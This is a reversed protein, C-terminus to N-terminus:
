PIHFTLDQPKEWSLGHEPGIYDVPLDSWQVKISPKTEEIEIIRGVGGTTTGTNMRGVIDGVKFQTLM